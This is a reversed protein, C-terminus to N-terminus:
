APRPYVHASAIVVYDHRDHGEYDPSRGEAKDDNVEPSPTEM